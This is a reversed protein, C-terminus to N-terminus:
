CDERGAERAKVGKGCGVRDGGTQCVTVKSAAGM